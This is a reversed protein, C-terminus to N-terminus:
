VHLAEYLRAFSPPQQISLSSRTRRALEAADILGRLQRGEQETVLCFASGLPQLNKLLQGVTIHALDESALAWLQALPVMMDRATLQNRDYGKAQKLMENQKALHERALLGVVQDDEDVVLSLNSHTREFLSRAQELPTSQELHLLTSPHFDQLALLAPSQLNLPAAPAPCIALRAAPHNVTLRKM